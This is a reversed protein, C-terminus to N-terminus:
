KPLQLSEIPPFGPSTEVARTLVDQATKFDGRARPDSNWLRAILELLLPPTGPAVPPRTGKRVEGPIKFPAVGSFPEKRTMMQNLMVGFSYCDVAFTYEGSANEFIEPATYEVPGRKKTVDTGVLRALGFDTVKLVAGEKTPADLIIVNSPKLSRHVLNSKHTHIMAECIQIAFQLIQAWTFEHESNLWHDLSQGHVYETVVYSGAEAKYVGLIDAVNPHATVQKIALLNRRFDHESPVASVKMAVIIDRGKAKDRFKRLEILGRREIDLDEDSLGRLDAKQFEHLDKGPPLPAPPAEKTPRGGM